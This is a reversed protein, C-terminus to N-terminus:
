TKAQSLCMPSIGGKSRDVMEEEGVTRVLHPKRKLRDNICVILKYYGAGDSNLETEFSRPLNRKLPYFLFKPRYTSAHPDGFKVYM